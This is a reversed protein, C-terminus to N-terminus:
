GAGASSDASIYQLKNRVSNFRRLMVEETFDVEGINSVEDILMKCEKDTADFQLERKAGERLERATVKGDGDVDLRNFLDQYSKLQTVDLASPGRGAPANPPLEKSVLCGM